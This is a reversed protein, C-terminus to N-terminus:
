SRLTQEFNAMVWPHFSTGRNAPDHYARTYVWAFRSKVEYDFLRVLVSERKLFRGQDLSKPAVGWRKSALLDDLDLGDGRELLEGAMLENIGTYIIVVDPRLRPVLRKALIAEHSVAFNIQGANLVEDRERGPVTRLKRQLVAPWSGEITLNFCFTTSGGSCLVRVCGPPKREDTDERNRFGLNNIVTGSNYSNPRHTAGLEADWAYIGYSKGPAGYRYHIFIRGGAEGACVLLASVGVSM